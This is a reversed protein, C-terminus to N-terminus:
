LKRTVLSEIKGVVEFLNLKKSRDNLSKFDAREQRIIKRSCYYKKLALFHITNGLIAHALSDFLINMEYILLLWNPLHLSHLIYKNRKAIVKVEKEPIKKITSSIDHYCVANPQFYLEWGMKWVRIGLDVDEFYYPNFLECFGNLQNFYDRRVIANAGSLFFTPLIDENSYRNKNSSIHIRYRVIPIKAGDQNEKSIPDKILGMVGFVSENEFIPLISKFYGEEVHLDSNLILVLDHKASKVGRNVNGSFGTNKDARVIIVSEFHEQILSISNDQSADDSVIIEFNIIQSTNLAHIAHSITDIIIEAGNYNPIVVSIGSSENKM